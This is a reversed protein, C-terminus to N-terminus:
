VSRCGDCLDVGMAHVSTVPLIPDNCTGVALMKHLPMIPVLSKSIYILHSQVNNQFMRQVNLTAVVTGTFMKLPM